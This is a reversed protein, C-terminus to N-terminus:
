EGRFWSEVKAWVVFVVIMWTVYCAGGIVMHLVKKWTPLAYYEALKLDDERRGM